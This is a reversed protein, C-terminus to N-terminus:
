NRIRAIVPRASSFVSSFFPPLSARTELSVSGASNYWSGGRLSREPSGLSQIANEQARIYSFPTYYDSCWEWFRGTNSLGARAAYEWEVETPLRVEWGSLEPPLNDNLWECFANASYWSIGSVGYTPFRPFTSAELYDDSVLGELILVDINDKRWYPKSELFLEWAERSIINEAIYFSDIFTDQPFNRSNNIYGENLLSFNFSGINISNGWLINANIAVSENTLNYQETYWTSSRLISQEEGSLLEGLWLVAMPNEDLFEVINLASNILSLPSPSLGKNDLLTKARILDRLSARTIVFRSSATIIENISNRLQPNTIGFAFRYVAESLTLPIQYTPSAEETFTWAAFESADNLFAGLIDNSILTEKIDVKKPFILSAFVRSGVEIEYRVPSFGPLRLELERQGRAAFVEAPAAGMYVGDILIAAGQPESDVMLVSGPNSIGPYFLLFFLALLIIFGYLAALYLGPRIGFIPVLHVQDESSSPNEKKLNKKVPMLRIIPFGRGRTLLFAEHYKRYKSPLFM